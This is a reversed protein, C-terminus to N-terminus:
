DEYKRGAVVWERLEKRTVKVGKTLKRIRALSAAFSDTKPSIKYTKRVARRILEGMTANETKTLMMLARYEDPSFLVNTRQTLM